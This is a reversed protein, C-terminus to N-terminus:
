SDAYIPVFKDGKFVNFSHTQILPGCPSRPSIFAGRVAARLSKFLM